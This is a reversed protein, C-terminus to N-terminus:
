LMYAEQPNKRASFFFFFFCFTEKTIKKVKCNNQSSKKIKWFNLNKCDHPFFQIFWNLAFFETWFERLFKKNRCNLFNIRTKNRKALSWKMFSDVCFFDIFSSFSAFFLWLSKFACFLQILFHTNALQNHNVKFNRM